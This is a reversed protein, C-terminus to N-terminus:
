WWELSQMWHFLNRSRFGITYVCVEELMHNEM